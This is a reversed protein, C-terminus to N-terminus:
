PKLLHARNYRTRDHQVTCNILVQLKTIVLGLNPVTSRFAMWIDSGHCAVAHMGLSFAHVRNFKGSVVCKWMMVSNIM